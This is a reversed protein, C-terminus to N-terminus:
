KSAQPTAEPDAEGAHDTRNGDPAALVAGAKGDYYHRYETYRQSGFDDRYTIRGFIWLVGEGNKLAKRRADSIDLMFVSTFQGAPGLVMKIASQPSITEFPGQYSLPGYTTGTTVSVDHARTIGDNVIVMTIIFQDTMEDAKVQIGEISVYAQLLKRGIGQVEALTKKASDASEEASKEADEISRRNFADAQAIQQRLIENQEVMVRTQWRAVLVGVGTFICVAGAFIVESFRLWKQSIHPYNWRKKDTAQGTAQGEDTDQLPEVGASISAQQQPEQTAADQEDASDSPKDKNKREKRSEEKSM